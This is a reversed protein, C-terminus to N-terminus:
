KGQTEPGGAQPLTMDYGFNEFDDKYVTRVINICEEDYLQRLDRQSSETVNYKRHAEEIVDPGADVSRLIDVIGKSYEELKEIRVGDYIGYGINRTQTEWHQNVGHQPPHRHQYRVFKLFIKFKKAEGDLPNFGWNSTLRDRLFHYHEDDTSNAKSFFCSVAREFPNRVFTFTLIRKDQSAKELTIWHFAAKSRFIDGYPYRYGHDYLFIFNCL